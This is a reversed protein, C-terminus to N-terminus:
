RGNTCRVMEELESAVDEVAAQVASSLGVGAVFASGEIGYVVVQEPLQGLARAVEIAEGVGFTHTSSRFVRAPLRDRSADYRHVTGPPAGSSCADVVLAVDADRWADLLRTPEQECELVAVGDAVRDRLRAAVALGAGDDGRYTNGVCVVVTSM